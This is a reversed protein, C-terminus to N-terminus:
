LRSRSTGYIHTHFLVAGGLQLGLGSSFRLVATTVREPQCARSDQQPLKPTLMGNGLTM